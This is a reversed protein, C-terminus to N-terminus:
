VAQKICKQIALYVKLVTSKGFRVAEFLQLVTRFVNTTFHITVFPECQDFGIM